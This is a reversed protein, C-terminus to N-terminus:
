NISKSKIKEIIEEKTLPKERRQLIGNKIECYSPLCESIPNQMLLNIDEGILTPDINKIQSTVEKWEFNSDIPKSIINKNIHNADGHAFREIENTYKDVLIYWSRM